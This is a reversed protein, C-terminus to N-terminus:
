DASEYAQKVWAIVEADVEKEGSLRVQYQCMGGPPLKVLRETSPVDKMNLGLDVRSNTAPGLMAFQRKRRLSVYTKKPAIEFEGLKNIEAMVKDHISRLSAKPGTYFSAVIDDISMSDQNNTEPNLEKLAFGALVQADGYGLGLDSKLMERIESFKGLGSARILEVLQALTKGTRKEINSLQTQTAKDVINM